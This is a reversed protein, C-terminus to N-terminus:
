RGPRVAARPLLPADRNILLGLRRDVHGRRARHPELASPVGRAGVLGLRLPIREREREQAHRRVPVPDSTEFWDIARRTRIVSRMLVYALRRRVALVPHRRGGDLVADIGVHALVPLTAAEATAVGGALRPHEFLSLYADVISLAHGGLQVIYHGRATGATAQRAPNTGSSTNTPPGIWHGTGIRHAPRTVAAISRDLITTVHRQDNAGTSRLRDARDRGREAYTAPRARRPTLAFRMVSPALDHLRIGHLELAWTGAAVTWPGISRSAAALIAHDLRPDNPRMREVWLDRRVHEVQELQAFMNLVDRSYRICQEDGRWFEVLAPLDIVPGIRDLLNGFVEESRVFTPPHVPDYSPPRLSM